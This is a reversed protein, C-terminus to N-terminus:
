TYVFSTYYEILDIRVRGTCVPKITKNNILKTVRLGRMGETFKASKLSHM